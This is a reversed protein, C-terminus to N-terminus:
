RVGSIVFLANQNEMATAVAVTGDLSVRVDGLGDFRVGPFELTRGEERRGTALELRELSVPAPKTTGVWVSRGDATWGFVREGPELGRVPAPESGPSLNLIRYDRLNTRYLLSSESPDVFLYQPGFIEIPAIETWATGSLPSRIVAWDSGKRRQVAILGDAQLAIPLIDLGEPAALRHLVEGDLTQVEISTLPKEWKAVLMARGDGSLLSIAESAPPLRRPLQGTRHLTLYPASEYALPDEVVVAASGDRSMSVAWGWRFRTLRAAPSGSRDQRLVFTRATGNLALIEGGPSLDQIELDDPLDLLVRIRGDLDAAHLDGSPDGFTTYWITEGSPHWCLGGLTVLLPVLVKQEGSALDIRVLAAESGTAEDFRFAALSTGDPAVRLNSLRERGSAVVRGPPAEIRFEGDLHRVIALKSGDPFWDAAIVNDAIALADGGSLGVVELKGSRIHIEPLEETVTLLALEERRSIALLEREGVELRRAEASGSRTLYLGPSEGEFRASYLITRGDGTFRAARIAGQTFTARQFSTRSPAPRFRWAVVAGLIGTAVLAAAGVAMARSRPRLRTRVSPAGRTSSASDGLAFALDRATQFRQKPDKRLCHELTRALGPPIGIAPDLEPPEEKLIATLTDMATDGQFPRRGTVMEWLVVGLSFLDSRADVPLGRVQEPSM